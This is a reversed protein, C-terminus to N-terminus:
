QPRRQYVMIWSDIADDPLILFYPFPVQWWWRPMRWNWVVPEGLPQYQEFGPHEVLATEGQWYGPHYWIGGTGPKTRSNLVILDPKLSLVYDADHKQHIGGEVRAIHADNLGVMDIVDFAPLAWPLAGAHNVALLGGDPYAEGITEALKISQVTMQGEQYYPEPLVEGKFAALLHYPPVSLLLLPLCAVILLCRVLWRNHLWYFLVAAWVLAFLPLLMRFHFMWDGGGLLVIGLLMSCMGAVIMLPQNVTGKLRDRLWLAWVLLLPLLVPLSYATGIILQRLPEGTAKAYFTNPLPVGYVALRLVLWALMPLLAALLWPLAMRDRKVIFMAVLIALLLFPGEPRAVGILAVPLLWHKERIIGISAWVLLAMYLSTELGATSWYHFGHNLVLLLCAMGAVMQGLGLVRCLERCGLLTLFAFLLGWFRSALEVAIGLKGSVTLLLYWLPSSYGEVAPMHDSWSWWHGALAREVYRFYIYGDDGVQRLFYYSLVAFLLLSLFLPLQRRYYDIDRKM